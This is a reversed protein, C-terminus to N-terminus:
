PPIAKATDYPNPKSRTSESNNIQSSRDYLPGSRPTLYPRQNEVAFQEQLAQSQAQTDM